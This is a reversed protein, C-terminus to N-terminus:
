QSRKVEKLRAKNIKGLGAARNGHYGTVLSLDNRTQQHSVSRAPRRNTESLRSNSREAKLQTEAVTSSNRRLKAWKFTAWAAIERRLHRIFLPPKQQSCSTRIKLQRLHTNWFWVAKNLIGSRKDGCYWRPRLEANVGWQHETWGLLSSSGLLVASFSGSQHSM